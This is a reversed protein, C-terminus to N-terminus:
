VSRHVPLTEMPDWGQGLRRGSLETWPIRLYLTRGGAAWTVPSWTERIHELEDADVVMEGPGRALVSWGRHYEYDFQDVELALRTGPTQQGVLSYPTTRLVIADDVVAYNVPVIHPGHATCVGVRGVLGARLLEECETTTLDFSEYM